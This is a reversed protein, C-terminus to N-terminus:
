EGTEPASVHAMNLQQAGPAAINMQALAMLPGPRMLRQVKALAEVASIFQKHANHQRRLFFPMDFEGMHWSADVDSLYAALWCTVIREVLMRELMTHRTEALLGARLADCHGMLLNHFAADKKAASLAILKEQIMRPFAGSEDGVPLAAVDYGGNGAIM